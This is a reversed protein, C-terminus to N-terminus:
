NITLIRGYIIKIQKIINIGCKRKSNFYRSNKGHLGSTVRTRYCNKNWVPRFSVELAPNHLLHHSSEKIKNKEQM